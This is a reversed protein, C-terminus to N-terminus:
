NLDEDKWYKTGQITAQIALGNQTLKYLRIGPAVTIAANIAGGSKGAKAAADAQANAEWGSQVFTKFAKRDRFLFVARFDKVGLGLGLGGSAMNMYINQGTKNNHAVGKGGEASFLVLNVGFNAFTAYGYSRLLMERAEPAYKYLLKLTENNTQLREKRAERNEQRIEKKSKADWFGSFMIVVLILSVILKISKM